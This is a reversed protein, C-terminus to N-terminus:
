RHLTTMGQMCAHEGVAEDAAPRRGDHSAQEGDLHRMGEVGLGESQATSNKAMM